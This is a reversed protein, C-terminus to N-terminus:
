GGFGGSHFRGFSGSRFGGSSFSGARGARVGTLSGDYRSTRVSTRGVPSSMRYGAANHMQFHAGGFMHARPAPHFRCGGSVRSLPAPAIRVPNRCRWGYYDWFHLHHRPGGGFWFRVGSYGYSAYYDDEYGPEDEEGPQEEMFDSLAIMKVDVGAAQLAVFDDNLDDAEALQSGDAVVYLVHHIGLAAFGEATPIKALYRNDFQADEDGYQRLRNSDLVLVPAAPSPRQAKARELIPLYYLAAGLTEQSPVVGLPHPWNDFTYVPEFRQALGAAVAVSEPGPVDIIIATDAPWGPEAFLSGISLGKAYGRAMEPSFVPRMDARLTTDDAVISQFLTPVYYPLLQTQTPALVQPLIPVAARWSPGGDADNPVAYPLDIRREEQGVNWGERQQLSLSDVQMELEDKQQAMQLEDEDYCGGLALAGGGLLAMGTLAHRRLPLESPALNERWWSAAVPLESKRPVKPESM